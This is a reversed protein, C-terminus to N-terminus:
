FNFQKLWRNFERAIELNNFEVFLRNYGAYRYRM